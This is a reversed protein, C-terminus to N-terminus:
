RQEIFIRINKSKDKRFVCGAINTSKFDDLSVALAIRELLSYSIIRGTGIVAEVVKKIIRTRIELHERVFAAMEIYSGDFMKEFAKQSIEELCGEARQLRSISKDVNLAGLGYKCFTDHLKRFRVREYTEDDNMPDHLYEHIGFKDHLTEIVDERTYKLLPRIIKIGNNISSTRMSCLGTLGSGRSLRMMFTEWQDLMHHAVLITEINKTACFNTLLRYRAARARSELSGTIHDEHNWELVISRIGREELIKIIPLIETSSEERLKHDVFVSYMDLGHFIAFEHALLSLCLSDAGGSTAVVFNEIPIDLNVIIM